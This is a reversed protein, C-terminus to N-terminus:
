PKAKPARRGKHAPGPDKRAASPSQRARGPDKRAPGAEKRVEARTRVQEELSRLRQALTNVEHRTPLDLLKAWFEAGANSERRWQSSANVYDALANCFPESHATRAYAEEACDIWTDYLRNLADPTLATSQPAGLRAVFAAAAERLTDSWLRQLRRQADDVDRLAQAARQARQQHERTLGLAPLEAAAAPDAGALPAAAWPMKFSDAFQDRLFNSFTQAAAAVAPASGGVSSDRFSRTAAAFREAADIFPALGFGGAAAAGPGAAASPTALAAFAPWQRWLDPEM